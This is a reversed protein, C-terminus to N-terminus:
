DELICLSAQHVRPKYPQGDFRQAATKKISRGMAPSCPDSQEKRTLRRGWWEVSFEGPHCVISVILPGPNEGWISTFIGGATYSSDMSSNWETQEAQSSQGLGQTLTPALDLSSPSSVPVRRCAMNEWQAPPIEDEGGAQTNELGTGDRWGSAVREEHFSSFFGTHRVQCFNKRAAPDWGQLVAPWGEGWSLAPATCIEPISLCRELCFCVEGGGM